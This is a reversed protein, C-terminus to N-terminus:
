YVWRRKTGDPKKPRVDVHTFNIATGINDFIPEIFKNLEHINISAARIDAALGDEHSSKVAVVTSIGSKRIDNQKKHCRFGSTIEIKQGCSDCLKELKEILEKAVRQEVCDEYKCSCQFQSTHFRTSLFSMDGKRFYYFKDDEQM